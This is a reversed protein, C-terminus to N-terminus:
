NAYSIDGLSELIRQLLREQSEWDCILLVEEEKKKYNKEQCSYEWCPGIAQKCWSGCAESVALKLAEVVVDM